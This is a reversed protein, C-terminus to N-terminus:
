FHLHAGFYYSSTDLDWSSSDGSLELRVMRLGAYLGFGSFLDLGSEVRGSLHSTDQYEGVTLAVDVYIGQKPTMATIGLGIYPVVEDQSYETDQIRTTVDYM